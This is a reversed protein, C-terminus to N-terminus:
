LSASIVKCEEQLLNVIMKFRDEPLIRSTLAAVSLAAYPPGCRAPIAVGVASVEPLIENHNLAFGLKRARAVMKRVVDATLMGYRTIREANRTLYGECEDPPMHMLIALSAAAAGLPRRNGVDITLARVPYKGEERAICVADEGSRIMFFCTDGTQAAIREMSPEAVARWPFQNEASLGLEYTLPGLRYSRGDQDRIALRELCLAQVIRNVTAREMGTREVLDVIRSNFPNAEALARLIRATLSVLQAGRVASKTNM